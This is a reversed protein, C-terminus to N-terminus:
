LGRHTWGKIIEVLLNKACEIECQSYRGSSKLENISEMAQRKLIFLEGNTFQKFRRNDMM